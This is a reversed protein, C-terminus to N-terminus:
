TQRLRVLRENLVVQAASNHNLSIALYTLRLLFLVAVRSAQVHYVLAGKIIKPRPQKPKHQWAVLTM